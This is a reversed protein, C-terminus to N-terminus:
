SARKISELQLSHVETTAYNDMTIIILTISALCHKLTALLLEALSLVAELTSTIRHHLVEATLEWSRLQLTSCGTRCFAARPGTSSLAQSAHQSHLPTAVARSSYGCVRQLPANQLKLRQQLALLRSGLVQYDDETCEEPCHWPNAVHRPLATSPVRSRRLSAGGSDWCTLAAGNRGM